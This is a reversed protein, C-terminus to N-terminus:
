YGNKLWTNTMLHTLSKKKKKGKPVNPDDLWDDLAKIKEKLKDAGYEECIKKYSDINIQSPINLVHKTQEIFTCFRKFGDVLPKEYESEEFKLVKSIPTVYQEKEEVEEEEQETPDATGGQRPDATGRTLDSFPLKYGTKDEYGKVQSDISHTQSVYAFKAMGKLDEPRKGLFQRELLADMFAVKDKQSLENYVDFYSRFFNFGKRKTEKM